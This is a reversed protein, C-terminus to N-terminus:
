VVKEVDYGNANAGKVALVDKVSRIVRYGGKGDPLYKRDCFVVLDICSAIYPRTMQAPINAGLPLSMQFLMELTSLGALAGRGHMTTLAPHGTSMAWILYYTDDGRTEGLILRDYRSRLAHQILLRTTLGQQANTIYEDRNPVRVALEKADEIVGVREHVSLKQLISNLVTTKGSGTIGVFVANKGGHLICESLYDAMRLDMAGAAVLQELTPREEPDLHKRICLTTGFPSVPRLAGAFRMGNISASVIADACDPKLDRGVSAAVSQLAFRRSVESLEIGTNRILGREETWVSGDANVMIETLTPLAMLHEIPALAKGLIEEIVRAEAM